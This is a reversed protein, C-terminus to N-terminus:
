AGQLYPSMGQPTELFAGIDEVAVEVQCHSYATLSRQVSWTITHSMNCNHDLQRLLSTRVDILCLYDEYM